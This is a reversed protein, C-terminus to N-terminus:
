SRPALVIKVDVDTVDADDVIVEVPATLAPAPPTVAPGGLTAGGVFVGGGMVGGAIDGSKRFEEKILRPLAHAQSDFGGTMIRRRGFAEHPQPQVVIAITV